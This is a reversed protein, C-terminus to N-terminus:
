TEVLQNKFPLRHLKDRQMRGILAALYGLIHADSGALMQPALQSAM